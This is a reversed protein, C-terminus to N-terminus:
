RRPWLLHEQGVACCAPGQEQEVQDADATSWQRGRIWDEETRSRKEGREWEREDELVDTFSRKRSPEGIELKIRDHSGHVLVSRSRSSRRMRQVKHTRSSQLPIPLRTEIARPYSLEGLAKPLLHDEGVEYYIEPDIDLDTEISIPSVSTHTPEVQQDPSSAISVTPEDDPNCQQDHNILDAIALGTSVVVPTPSSLSLPQSSSTAGQVVDLIPSTLRLPPVDQNDLGPTTLGTLDEEDLWGTAIQLPSDFYSEHKEIYDTLTWLGRKINAVHVAEFDHCEDDLQSLAFRREDANDLM